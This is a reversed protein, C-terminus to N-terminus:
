TPCGDVIPDVPRAFLFSQPLKTLNKLVERCKKENIPTTEAPSISSAKKPKVLSHSPEPTPQPPVSEREKGKHHAPPLPRPSEVPKEVVKRIKPQPKKPVPAPPATAAVPPLPSESDVQRISGPDPSETALSLLEEDADLEIVKRQKPKPPKQPSKGLEEIAIVEQLLDHSGDDVYPPPPMDALRAKKKPQRKPAATTTESGSPAASAEPPRGGGLKLKLKPAASAGPVPAPPHAIKITSKKEETAPTAVRVKPVPPAVPVPVPVPVPEPEPEQKAAAKSDITAVCKTWVICLTLEWAYLFPCSSFVKISSRRWLSLRETHM